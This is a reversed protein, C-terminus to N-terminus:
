QDSTQPAPVALQQGPCAVEAGDVPGPDFAGAGVAGSEGAVQAPLVEGDDLDVPRVSGGAAAVALAVGDVGGGGGM